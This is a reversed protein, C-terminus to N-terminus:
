FCVTSHQVADIFHGMIPDIHTPPTTIASLIHLVASSYRQLEVNDNVETMRLIEPRVLDPATELRYLM